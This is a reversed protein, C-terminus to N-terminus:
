TKSHFFVQTGTMMDHLGRKQPHLIIVLYGIFLTFVTITKSLSRLISKQINLPEGSVLLVEIHSLKKGLTGRWSSSVSIVEYLFTVIVCTTILILNSEIFISILYYFPLMVILDINHAMLRPWFGAHMRSNM